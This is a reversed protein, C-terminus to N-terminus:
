GLQSVASERAARVSKATKQPNLIRWGLSWITQLAMLPSVSAGTHVALLKSFLVPQAAFASLVRHRLHRHNSLVVLLRSMMVPRKRGRRHEVEYAALDNRELAGALSLAQCFALTLGE